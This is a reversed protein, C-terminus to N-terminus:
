NAENTKVKKMTTMLKNILILEAAELGNQIFLNLLIERQYDKFSDNKLQYYIAPRTQGFRIAIKKYDIGYLRLLAKITDADLLKLLEAKDYRNM